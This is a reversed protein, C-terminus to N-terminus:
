NICITRGAIWEKIEDQEMGNTKSWKMLLQFYQHRNHIVSNWIVDYGRADRGWLTRASGKKSVCKREDIGWIWVIGFWPTTKNEWGNENKMRPQKVSKLVCFFPNKSKNMSLFFSMSSFLGVNLFPIWEFHVPLRVLFQTLSIEINTTTRENFITVNGNTTSPTRLDTNNSFSVTQYELFYNMSQLSITFKNWPVCKYRIPNSDLSSCTKSM